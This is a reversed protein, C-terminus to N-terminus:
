RAGQLSAAKQIFITAEQAGRIFEGTANAHAEKIADQQGADFSEAAVKQQTDAYGIEAAVKLQTDTYGIEAAVKVTTDQYGQVAAQELPADIPAGSEAAIKQHTEIYGLDSAEKLIAAIEAGDDAQQSVSAVKLAADAAAWQEMASDAFARGALKIQVLEASKDADALDQAMKKLDEIPDNSMVSAVKEQGAEFLVQQLAAQTGVQSVDQVSAVKEGGEIEAMLAELTAM